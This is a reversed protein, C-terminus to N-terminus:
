LNLAPYWVGRVVPPGINPLVHAPDLTSVDVDPVVRTVTAGSRALVGEALRRAEEESPATVGVGLGHSTEFWFRRLARHCTPGDM